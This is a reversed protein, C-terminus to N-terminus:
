LLLVVTRATHESTAPGHRSKVPLASESSPQYLVSWAAYFTEYPTVVLRLQASPLDIFSETHSSDQIDLTVVHDAHHPAPHGHEEHSSATHSHGEPVNAHALTYRALGGSLERSVHHPGAVLGLWVEGHPQTLLCSWIVTISVIARFLLQVRFRYNM